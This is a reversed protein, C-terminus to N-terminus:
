VPQDSGTCWYPYRLPPGSTSLLLIGAFDSAPFHAIAPNERYDGFLGAMSRNKSAPPLFSRNVPRLSKALM